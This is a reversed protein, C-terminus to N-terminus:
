ALPIYQDGAGEGVDVINGVQSVDDATNQTRINIGAVAAAPTVVADVHTACVLITSGCLCLYGVM